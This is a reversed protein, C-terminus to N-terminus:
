RVLVARGRAERLTGSATTLRVRYFMAGTTRLVPGELVGTAGAGVARRDQELRRGQADFWETVLAGGERAAYALRARPSPNALPAVTLGDFADIPAVSAALTAPDVQDAGRDTHPLSGASPRGEHDIDDTVAEDYPTPSGNAITVGYDFPMAHLGGTEVLEYFDANPEAGWTRTVFAGDETTASPDLLLFDPQSAGAVDASLPAAFREIAGPTAFAANYSTRLRIRNTSAGTAYADPETPLNPDNVCVNNRMVLLSSDVTASQVDIGTVGYNAVDNDYLYLENDPDGFQVVDIGRDFEGPMASFVICNRLTVHNPYSIVVEDLGAGAKSVNTYGIRCREILVDSSNGISVLDSLNTVGRILDLASLTVNGTTGMQVILANPDDNIIEARGLVGPKPCVTVHRNPGFAMAFSMTQNQFIPTQTIWVFNDVDPSAALNALATPVDPDQNPVERVMAVAPVSLVLVALAVAAPVARRVSRTFRHCPQM